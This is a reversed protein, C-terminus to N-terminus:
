GGCRGARRRRRSKGWTIRRSRGPSSRALGPDHRSPDCSAFATAAAHKTSPFSSVDSALHLRLDLGVEPAFPRAKNVDLLELVQHLLREDLDAMRPHREGISLVARPARRLALESRRRVRNRAAVPVRWAPAVRRYGAACKRQASRGPARTSSSSITARSSRLVEILRVASSRRSVITSFALDSSSTSASARNKEARM